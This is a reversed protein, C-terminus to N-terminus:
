AGSPARALQSGGQYRLEMSNPLCRSTLLDKAIELAAVAQKRIVPPFDDLLQESLTVPLLTISFFRFALVSL